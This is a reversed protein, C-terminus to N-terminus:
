FNVCLTKLASCLGYNQCKGPNDDTLSYSRNTGAYYVPDFFIM